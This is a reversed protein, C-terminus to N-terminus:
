WEKVSLCCIVTPDQSEVTKVKLADGRSQVRQGTHSDDVARNGICCNGAEEGALEDVSRDM